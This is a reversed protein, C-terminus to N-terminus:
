NVTPKPSPKSSPIPGSVSSTLHAARAPEMENLIASSTRPNLKALISIAMDDDMAAIQVAAADARMRGYIAVVGEEAKKVIAERKVLWVQLDKQRAELEATRKRLADEMRQIEAAQWRAHADVAADRINNCFVQSDNLTETRGPGASVVPPTRVPDDQAPSGEAKAPTPVVLAASAFLIAFLPARHARLIDPKNLRLRMLTSGIQALPQDAREEETHRALRAGPQDSALELLLTETCISIRRQELRARM